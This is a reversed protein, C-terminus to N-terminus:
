PSSPQSLCKQIRLFESSWFVYSSDIRHTRSLLYPYMSVNMFKLHKSDMVNPTSTLCTGDFGMPRRCDVGAHLLSTNSTKRGESKQNMSFICAFGCM